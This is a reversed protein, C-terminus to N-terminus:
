QILYEERGRGWREAHRRQREEQECRQKREDEERRQQWTGIKYPRAKPFVFEVWLVTLSDLEADAPAPGPDDFTDDVGGDRAQKLTNRPYLNEDLPLTAPGPVEEFEYFGKGSLNGDVPL